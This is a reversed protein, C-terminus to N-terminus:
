DVGAIDGFLRAARRMGRRLKAAVRYVRGVGRYLHWTLDSIENCHRRFDKWEHKDEFYLSSRDVFLGDTRSFNPAQIALMPHAAIRRLSPANKFWDWDWQQPQSAEFYRTISDIGKPAGQRTLGYAHMHGGEEVGKLHPAILEGKRMSLGLHFIDWSTSDLLPILERCRAAVDDRLLVDDEFVLFRQYGRELALEMVRRHSYACARHGAKPDSSDRPREIAPFREVNIKATEFRLSVRKLRETDRDLNIVFAHDFYGFIKEAQM